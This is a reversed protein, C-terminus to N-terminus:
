CPVYVANGKEDTYYCAGRTDRRYAPGGSQPKAVAGAVGGIVAGIVVGEIANLGAASGVAAGVASGAAVGVFVRDGPDMRSSYPNTACGGVFIAAIVATVKSAHQM